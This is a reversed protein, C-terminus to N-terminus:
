ENDDSYMISFTQKWEEEKSECIIDIEDSKCKITKEKIKSDSDEYVCTVLHYAFHSSNKHFILLQRCDSSYKVKIVVHRQGDFMFHSKNKIFDYYDDLSGCNKPIKIRYKEKNSQKILFKQRETEYDAGPRWQEDDWNIFTYGPYKKEELHKYTIPKPLLQEDNFNNIWERNSYSNLLFDKLNDVNQKSVNIEMCTIGSSRIKQRKVLDVEHTNVIEIAWRKGDATIGVIDPQLDKRDKRKEIEVDIFELRRAMISKYSPAMVAKNESIILESLMHLITMAAGQCNSHKSHAFYPTRIGSGIRAELPEKCKPCRCNCSLGKLGYNRIQYISVLEDKSNLAYPISQNNVKDNMM